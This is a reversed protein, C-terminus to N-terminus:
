DERLSEWTLFIRHALGIASMAAILWLGQLEMSLLLSLSLIAIRQWRSGMGMYRIKKGITWVEARAASYSFLLSGAMAASAPIALGKAVLSLYVISEAIRDTMADIFDGFKSAKGTARAVMGDLLDLLGFSLVAVGAAPSNRIILYGAVMALPVSLLTLALPHVLRGVLRALPLLPREYFKEM